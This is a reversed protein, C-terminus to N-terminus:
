TMEKQSITRVAEITVDYQTIGTGGTILLIDCKDTMSKVAEVIAVSDDKVIRMEVDGYGSDKLIRHLIAGSEDNEQVRTNSCTLISFRAKDGKSTHEHM